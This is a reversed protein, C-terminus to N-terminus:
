MSSVYKKINRELQKMERERLETKVNRHKFENDRVYDNIRDRVESSETQWLWTNDKRRFQSTTNVRRFVFAFSVGDNTFEVGHKTKYKTEDSRSLNRPKDDEPSLVFISGHELNFSTSHESDLTCWGRDGTKKTLREFFLRRSAGVTVTVTPHDSCATDSVSQVGDDSFNLDNHASVQKNCGLRLSNGNYDLIVEKHRDKFIDDGLYIKVELFNFGSVSHTPVGKRKLLSLLESAMKEIRDTFPMVRYQLSPHAGTSKLVALPGYVARTVTDKSKANDNMNKGFFIRIAQKSQYNMRCSNTLPKIPYFYNSFPSMHYKVFTTYLKILSQDVTNTNMHFSHLSPCKILTTKLTEGGVSNRTVMSRGFINEARGKKKTDAVDRRDPPMLCDQEHCIVNTTSHKIGENRKNDIRDLCVILASIQHRLLLALDQNKDFYSSEKLCKIWGKEQIKCRWEDYWRAVAYGYHFVFLGGNGFFDTTPM